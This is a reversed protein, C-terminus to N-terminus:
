PRHVLPLYLTSAVVAVPTPTVPPAPPAAPVTAILTPTAPATPWLTVTPMPLLDGCIIVAGEQASGALDNGTSDGFSVAPVNSFAVAATVVHGAAPLCLPTFILSILADTDPLSAIPPAYDAIVFDLEGDLDNADYAITHRFMPPLTVHLHDPQGDQNDDKDDFALCTEDFDISFVLSGVSKDGPQFRIPVTVPQGVTAPIAQPIVLAPGTTQAYLRNVVALSLM